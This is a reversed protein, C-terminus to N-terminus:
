KVLDSFNYFFLCTYAKNTDLDFCIAKDLILDASWHELQLILVLAFLLVVGEIFTLGVEWKGKLVFWVLVLQSASSKSPYTFRVVAQSTWKAGVQRSVRHMLHDPSTMMVEVTFHVSKIYLVIITYVLNNLMTWYWHKLINYFIWMKKILPSYNRRILYWKNSTISKVLPGPVSKGWRLLLLWM